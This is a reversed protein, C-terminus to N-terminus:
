EKKNNKGERERRMSEFYELEQNEKELDKEYFQRMLCFFNRFGALVGLIMMFLFGYETKLKDNLWIGICGCILLPSLMTVAVQSVMLLARVVSKNEKM